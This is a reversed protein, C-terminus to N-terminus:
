INADIRFVLVEKSSNDDRNQTCVVYLNGDQGKFFTSMWPYDTGLLDGDEATGLFNGEKDWLYFDRLNADCGLYTNEGEVMGSISGLNEDNENRLIKDLTGDPHYIGVIYGSEDAASGAIAIRDNLIYLEAAMSQVAEGNEDVFLIPERTVSGDEQFSVKEINEMDFFHSLGWEGSPHLTLLRSEEFPLPSISEREIVYNEDMLATLYVKGDAAIAMETAYNELSETKILKMDALHYVYLLNQKVLYFYDGFQAGNADFVEYTPIVPDLPLFEATLTYDGITVSGTTPSIATGEHAYPPDTEETEDTLLVFSQLFREEEETLNDGKLTISANTQQKESRIEVRQDNYEPHIFGYYEGVPIGDELTQNQLDEQMYGAQEVASRIRGPNNSISTEIRAVQEGDAGILVLTSEDESSKEEDKVWGEGLVAKWFTSEYYDEPAFASESETAEEEPETTDVAEETADKAETEPEANNEGGCATTFLLLFCLTLIMGRKM